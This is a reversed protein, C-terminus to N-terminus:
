LRSLLEAKKGAFEEDSLIGKAHLAGLRELAAFIDGGPQATASDPQAPPAPPESKQIAARQVLLANAQALNQKVAIQWQPAAQRTLEKLAETFATVSEELRGTGSEREGLKLLVTGLNMQTMGWQLPVREQTREKLAERYAL